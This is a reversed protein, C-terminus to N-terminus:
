GAQKSIERHIEDAHDILYLLMEREAQSITSLFVKQQIAPLNEYKSLVLLAEVKLKIFAPTM